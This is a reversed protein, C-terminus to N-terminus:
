TFASVASVVDERLFCVLWCGSLCWRGHSVDGQRCSVTDWFVQLVVTPHQTPQVHRQGWRCPFTPCSCGSGAATWQLPVALIARHCGGGPGVGTARQQQMPLALWRSCGHFPYAGTSVPASTQPVWFGGLGQVWPGLGTSIGRQQRCLWERCQWM